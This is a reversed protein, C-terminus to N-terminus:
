KSTYSLNVYMSIVVTGFDFGADLPFTGITQPLSRSRLDRASRMSDAQLAQTDKSYIVLSSAPLVLAWLPALVLTSRM